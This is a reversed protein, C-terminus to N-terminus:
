LGALKGVQRPLLPSVQIPVYVNLIIPGPGEESVGDGTAIMEEPVCYLCESTLPIADFVETFRLPTDFVLMATFTVAELVITALVELETVM